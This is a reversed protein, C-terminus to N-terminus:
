ESALSSSYPVEDSCGEISIDNTRESFFLLECHEFDLVWRLYLDCWSQETDSHVISKM